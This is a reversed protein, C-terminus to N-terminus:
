GDREGEDTELLRYVWETESFHYKIPQHWADMGECVCRKNVLKREVHQFFVTKNDGISVPFVAYFKHWQKKDEKSKRSWIM